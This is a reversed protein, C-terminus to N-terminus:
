GTRTPSHRRLHNENNPTNLNSLKVRAEVLKQELEQRGEGPPLSLYVENAIRWSDEAGPLGDRLRDEIDLLWLEVIERKFAPDRPMPFPM